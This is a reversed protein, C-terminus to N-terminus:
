KRKKEQMSDKDLEVLLGNCTNFKFVREDKFQLEWCKSNEFMSPLHKVVQFGGIFVFFAMMLGIITRIEIPFSAFMSGLGLSQKGGGTGNDESM